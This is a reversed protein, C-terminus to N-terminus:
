KDVIRYGGEPAKTVRGISTFHMGAVRQKSGSLKNLWQERMAAAKQKDADFRTNYDTFRLQVPEVHLLDGVIALGKAGGLEYLTHGVTHGSADRAVINPLVEADFDFTKIRNKYYQMIDQCRKINKPNRADGRVLWGEYEAKSMHITAKPFAPGNGTTLGTIHDGDLHTLVIDTVAEPAIGKKALVALTQGKKATSSGWGTDLLAVHNKMTVLYTRYVTKVEGNPMLALKEPHKQIDAFVAPKFTNELDDIATVKMKPVKLETTGPIPAALASSCLTLGLILPVLFKRM